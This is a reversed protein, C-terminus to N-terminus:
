LPCVHQVVLTGKGVLKFLRLATPISNSTHVLISTYPVEFVDWLQSQNLALQSTSRTQRQLEAKGNKGFVKWTTIM